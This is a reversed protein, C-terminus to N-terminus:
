ISIEMYNLMTFNRKTNQKIFYIWEYNEFTYKIELINKM